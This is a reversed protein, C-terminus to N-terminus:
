RPAEDTTLSLRMRFGFQVYGIDTRGGAVLFILALRAAQALGLRRFCVPNIGRLIELNMGTQELTRRLSLQTFFRLHTRDLIGKDQYQWERRCLVEYLTDFFRVNPISGVLYGGPKMLRQVKQFFYEHDPMHEIVDNCVILDFYAEPLRPCVDEFFGEEIRHLRARAKNAAAPYPEVGWVECDPGLTDVFGGEGCGVDLVTRYQAPLFARMDARVNRYYRTSNAGRLIM